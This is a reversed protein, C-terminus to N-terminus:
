IGFCYAAHMGGMDKVVVEEEEEEEDVEMESDSDVGEESMLKTQRRKVSSPQVFEKTKRRRSKPINIDDDSESEDVELTSEKKYVKTVRRKKPSKIAKAEAEDQILQNEEREKREEELRLAARAEAEAQAKKERKAKVEAAKEADKRAKELDRQRALEKAEAVAREKAEAAARERAERAEAEREERKQKEQRAKLLEKKSENIQDNLFTLMEFAREAGVNLPGVQHTEVFSEPCEWAKGRELDDAILNEVLEDFRERLDSTSIIDLSDSKQIVILIM